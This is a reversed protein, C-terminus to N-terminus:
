LRGGREEVKHIKKKLPLLPAPQELNTNLLEVLLDFNVLRKNGIKVSPLEGSKVKRRLATLTLATGPDLERLMQMCEPMTRMRPINGM